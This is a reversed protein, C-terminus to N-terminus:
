RAGPAGTPEQAPAAAPHQKRIEDRKRQMVDLVGQTEAGIRELDFTHWLVRLADVRADIQRFFPVSEAPDMRAAIYRHFRDISLFKNLAGRAQEPVKPDIKTEANHCRACAAQVTTVDLVLTNMSSHCTVCTAGHREGKKEKLKAFHKSQRYADLIQDHCDGCTEAVKSFAVASRSQNRGAFEAHASRADAAQADGGHCDSCTVGEQGHISRQWDRYYEYLKPHTVLFDPDSHCRICSDEEEAGVRSPSAAVALLAALALALCDLHSPRM